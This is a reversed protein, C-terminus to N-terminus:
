LPIGNTSDYSVLVEKQKQAISHGTLAISFDYMETAPSDYEVRCLYM